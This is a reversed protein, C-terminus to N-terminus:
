FSETAGAWPPSDEPAYDYEEDYYIEYYEIIDDDKEPWIQKSM